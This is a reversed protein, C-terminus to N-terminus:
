GAIGTRRPISAQGESVGKAFTELIQRPLLSPSDQRSPLVVKSIQPLPDVALQRPQNWWGARHLPCASPLALWSAATESVPPFWVAPASAPSGPARLGALPRSSARCPPSEGAM